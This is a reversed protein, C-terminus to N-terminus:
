MRSLFRIQEVIKKLARSKRARVVEGSLGLRSAIEGPKMGDVLTMLLIRRDESTTVKLAERILTSQDRRAMAAAPDLIADGEEIPREEPRRGSSRFYGNIHNRAIGYVFAGLREGDRLQGRRLGSVVAIMVEQAIDQADEGNRLRAQAVIRIREHYLTVLLHEAEVDGQRVRETLVAQEEPGPLSRRGGIRLVADFTLVRITVGSKYRSTV